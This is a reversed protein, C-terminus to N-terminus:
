QRLRQIANNYDRCSLCYVGDPRAPQKGCYTCIGADKREHYEKLKRASICNRCRSNLGNFRSRDRNFATHPKREGCITCKYAGARPPFVQYKKPTFRRPSDMRRTDVDTMPASRRVQKGEAFTNLGNTQKRIARGEAADACSQLRHRSLVEVDHDISPDNLRLRVRYVSSSMRAHEMIRCALPRQTQGVYTTGDSFSIRYITIMAAHNEQGM